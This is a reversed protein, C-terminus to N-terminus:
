IQIRKSIRKNTLLFAAFGIINFLLFILVWLVSAKKTTHFAYVIAWITFLAWYLTTGLVLILISIVYYGFASTYIFWNGMGNGGRYYGAWLWRPTDVDESYSYIPKANELYNFLETGELPKGDSGKTYYIEMKDVRKNSQMISEVEKKVEETISEHDNLVGIIKENMRHPFDHSSLYDRQYLFQFSFIAVLLVAIATFLLGKAFLKQKHYLQSIEYRMEQEGGFREIALQIAEQEPKGEKKLEHIAELLHSRMEAKLEKIERKNGVANQYVSDVFAEVKKM